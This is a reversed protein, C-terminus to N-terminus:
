RFAHDSSLDFARESPVCNFGVEIARLCEVKGVMDLLLQRARELNAAQNEPKFKMLVVHTVMTFEERSGPKHAVLVHEDPMGWWRLPHKVSFEAAADAPLQDFRVTSAMARLGASCKRPTSQTRMPESIVALAALGFQGVVSGSAILKPTMYTAIVTSGPASMKSIRELSDEVAAEDLYMTVGEWIWVSPEHPHFATSWCSKISPCASSTAPRTACDRACHDAIGAAKRIKLRKPAPIISKSCRPM